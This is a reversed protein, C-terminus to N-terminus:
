DFLAAGRELADRPIVMEGGAVAGALPIPNCGGATGITPPYIGSECHLCEIQSSTEVYGRNGCVECADFAVAIRLAGGPEREGTSVAIIRTKRGGGLDVAFRHLHGDALPALELHLGDERAVVPIAPSLAKPRQGYVFGCGLLVLIAIGLGGGWVRARRERLERALELRAQAVEAPRAVASARSPVLLLLLPLVLVALIFFFENRVLPGIAAMTRANAPVWGAESLEHYANVLMQIVFIGLAIGTIKFFRGLDVRVSGRAFLVGFVVAAGLGLAAGLAALFGSSSLSLAALFVVTEIGERFVMLFTFLFVGWGVGTGRAVIRGLSGKMGSALESAHRWMWVVLSAVVAASVLYLLGEFVEENVAWRYLGWAGAVSAVLAAAIGLFVARMHRELGERRLFAVIISVVLAAEIGERLTVLLAELM